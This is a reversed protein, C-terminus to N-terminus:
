EESSHLNLLFLGHKGISGLGVKEALLPYNVEGGVAPGAETKYGRQKLFGTFNDFAPVTKNGISVVFFGHLLECSKYKQKEM